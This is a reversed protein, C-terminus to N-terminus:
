ELGVGVREACLVPRPCGGDGRVNRMELPGVGLPHLFALLRLGCLRGHGDVLHMQAGPLLFVPLLFVAVVGVYLRSVLQGIVHFFHAVGVHLEHTNRLM